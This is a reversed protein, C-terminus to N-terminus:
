DSYVCAALEVANTADGIAMVEDFQITNNSDGGAALRISSKGNASTHAECYKTGWGSTGPDSTTFYACCEVSNDWIIQGWYTTGQVLDVGTDVRNNDGDRVEVSVFDTTNVTLCCFTTEGICLFSGDAASDLASFKIKASAAANNKSGSLGFDVFGSGSSWDISYWESGGDSLDCNGTGGSIAASCVTTDSQGSNCCAPTQADLDFTEDILLTYNGKCNAGAGLRRVFTTTDARTLAAILVLLLIGLLRRM